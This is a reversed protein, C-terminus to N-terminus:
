RCSVVNFGQVRNKGALLIALFEECDAKEFRSHFARDVEVSTRM